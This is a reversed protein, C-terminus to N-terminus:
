KNPRAPKRDRVSDLIFQNIGKLAERIKGAFAMLAAVEGIPIHPKEVDILVHDHVPWRGNHLDHSDQM